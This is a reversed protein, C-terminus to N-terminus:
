YLSDACPGNTILLTAILTPMPSILYVICVLQTTSGEFSCFLKLVGGGLSSVKCVIRSSLLGLDLKTGESTTLPPHTKWVREGLKLHDERDRWM